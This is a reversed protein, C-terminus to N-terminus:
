AMEVLEDRRNRQNVTRQLRRFKLALATIEIGRHLRRALRDRQRHHFAVVVELDHFRDVMRVTQEAARRQLDHLKTRRSRLSPSSMALSDAASRAATTEPRRRPAPM